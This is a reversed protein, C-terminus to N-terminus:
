GYTARLWSRDELGVVGPTYVIQFRKRFAERPDERKQVFAPSSNVTIRRLDKDAVYEVRANGIKNAVLAENIM